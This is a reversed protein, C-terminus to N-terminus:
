GRPKAITNFTCSGMPSQPGVPKSGDFLRYDAGSLLATVAANTENTVEIYITPRVSELIRKGGSLVLAEAGEVDIKVFTPAPFHELLLDLTLTPVCVKARAGDEPSRSTVSELSNYARGRKAILFSAVGVRDAVAAPLVEVKLGSNETLGVSRRMLDAMWIDPEVALVFGDSAMAASSFAFVGVNAGIDWVVSNRRINDDVVSLLESDFAADSLKLYKLQSDPSVYLSTGRYRAPLRRKICRGRALLELTRRLM